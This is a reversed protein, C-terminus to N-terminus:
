ITFYGLLINSKKKILQSVYICHRLLPHIRHVWLSPDPAALSGPMDLVAGQYPTWPALEQTKLSDVVRSLKFIIWFLLKYASKIFLFLKVWYSKEPM